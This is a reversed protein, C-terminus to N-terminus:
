AAEPPDSPARSVFDRILATLAVPRDYQPFHGCRPLVHLEVDPIVDLLDVARRYSSTADERGWIVSVPLRLGRLNSQFLEADEQHYFALPDFEVMRRLYEDLRTAIFREYLEELVGDPINEPVAVTTRYAAKFTELTTDGDAGFRVLALASPTWEGEDTLHGQPAVAGSCVVVLRTMRERAAFALEAAIRGGRSHGVAVFEDIALADLLKVLHLAVNRPTDAVPLMQSEGYGPADVVITRRVEALGDLVPEWSMAGDIGPGSGHILLLPEGTGRESYYTEVGDVDISLGHDRSPTLPRATM